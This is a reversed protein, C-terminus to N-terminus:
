EVQLEVQFQRACDASPVGLGVLRRDMCAAFQESFFRPEVPGIALGFGNRAKTKSAPPQLLRPVGVRRVEGRALLVQFEIPGEVRAGRDLSLTLLLRGSWPESRSVAENVCRKGTALVASMLTDRPLDPPLSSAGPRFCADSTVLCIAAQRLAKDRIGALPDVASARPESDSRPAVTSYIHAAEAWAGRQM